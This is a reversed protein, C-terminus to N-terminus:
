PGVEPGLRITAVPVMYAFPQQMTEYAVTLACATAPPTRSRCRLSANKGVATEKATVDWGADTLLQAFDDVFRGDSANGSISWHLVFTDGDRLQADVPRARHGGPFTVPFGDPLQLDDVWVTVSTKGDHVFTTVGGRIAPDSRYYFAMLRTGVSTIQWRTPDVSRQYYSLVTAPDDSTDTTAEFSGDSLSGSRADGYPPLGVPYGGHLNAFPGSLGPGSPGLRAVGVYTSAIM